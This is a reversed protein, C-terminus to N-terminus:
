NKCAKEMLDFYRKELLRSEMVIDYGKESVVRLIDGTYKRGATKLITEAWLAPSESLGLFTVLNTLAMERSIIDSAAVPLGSAQAEVGTISLGEYLSPMVFIDMAQYIDQINERTGYFVVNGEIRLKHAKERIKNGLPGAGVLLLVAKPNLLLLKYFVDLLFLHNKQIEFRGINGIVLADEALKLENRVNKRATDNFLFRRIDIANRVIVFDRRYFLHKAAESSCAYFDTALCSILPKGLFHLINRMVGSQVRSNHSHVIVRRCKSLRAAFVPVSNAATVMNIHVIDYREDNILRTLRCAYSFPHKNPDPLYHVICGMNEFEAKQYVGGYSAVIGFYIKQKDIHEIFSYIIKEIGGVSSKLGLMLVKILEPL